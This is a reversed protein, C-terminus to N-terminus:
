QNLIHKITNSRNSLKYENYDLPTSQECLQKFNLYKANLGMQYPYNITDNNVIRIQYFVNYGSNEVWMGYRSVNSNEIDLKFGKSVIYRIEDNM